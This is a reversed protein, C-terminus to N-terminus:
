LPSPRKISVRPKPRGVEQERTASARGDVARATFGQEKQPYLRARFKSIVDGDSVAAALTAGAPGGSHGHVAAASFSTIYLEHTQQALM